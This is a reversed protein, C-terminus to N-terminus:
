TCGKTTLSLKETAWANLVTIASGESFTPLIYADCSFYADWMGDGFVAPSVIVNELQNHAAIKDLIYKEYRDKVDSSFGVIKLQWGHRKSLEYMEKWADLLLDIGKKEHIRSLFLLTKLISTNSDGNCKKLPIDVGNPIVYFNNKYGKSKLFNVEDESNVIIAASNDIIRRYILFIFISKKLKSQNLAWETLMGNPSIVYPKNYLKAWLYIALSSLSWLSQIHAIDADSRKYFGIYKLLENIQRVVINNKVIIYIEQGPYNHKDIESFEDEQAAIFVKNGSQSYYKCLNQMLNAIGTIKRSISYTGFIIKM